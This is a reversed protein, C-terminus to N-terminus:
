WRATGIGALCFGPQTLKGGGDSGQGQLASRAGKIEGRMFGFSSWGARGLFQRTTAGHAIAMKRNSSVAQPVSWAHQRDVVVIIGIGIGLIWTTTARTITM